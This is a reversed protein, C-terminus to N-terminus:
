SLCRLEVTVVGHGCSPLCCTLLPPHVLLRACACPCLPDLHPHPFLASQRQRERGHLWDQVSARRLDAAGGAGRKLRSPSVSLGGDGSRSGSGSPDAAGSRRQAASHRESARRPPMAPVPAQEGSPPLHDGRFDTFRSRSRTQPAAQLIRAATHEAPGGGNSAETPAPDLWILSRAAVLGRGM